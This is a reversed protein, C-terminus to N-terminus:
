GLHYGFLIAGLCAVGVYPLVSSSSKEQVKTPAVDESDGQVILIKVDSSYIAPYTFTDIAPLCSVPM